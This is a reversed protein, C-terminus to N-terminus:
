LRIVLSCSVDEDCAIAIHMQEAWSSDTCSAANECAFRKIRMKLVHVYVHQGFVQQSTKLGYCTLLGSFYWLLWDIHATHAFIGMYRGASRM